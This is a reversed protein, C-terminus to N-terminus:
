KQMEDGSKEVAAGTKELVEGTKEVVKGTVEKVKEGATQAAESTSEAANDLAAGTREGVGENKSKRGCGSVAAAIMMAIIGITNCRNIKMM